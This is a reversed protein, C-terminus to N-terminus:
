GNIYGEKILYDKLAKIRPRTGRVTFTVEYIQSTDTAENEDAVSVAPASLTEASETLAEEVRAVAEDDRQRAAQMEERQANMEELARKRESVATVAMNLNLSKRYEILIEDADEQLSIVGLDDKVKDVFTKVAEKLKKKSETLTINLGVQEFTLFDIDAVAICEDFYDKIEEAREDKLGQEVNCINVQLESDGKRFPETVYKKYAAEFEDWPAFIDKKVAKRQTELADFQKRLEARAKKVSKLTEETCALATAEQVKETIIAGFLKLKEEIVPLSVVTILQQEEKMIESM